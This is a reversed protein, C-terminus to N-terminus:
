RKTLGDLAIRFERESANYSVKYETPFRGAKPWKAPQPIAQSTNPHTELYAKTIMPELFTFRGDWSGYIFTNTFPQGNLEPSHVDTWHLGMQPVASAAAPGPPPVYGAPVFDGSPLNGAKTAYEPDSPLIAAEEAGSVMYFHLDFHPQGYLQPPEHGNPNWGLEAHDFGTGAAQSPLPLTVMLATPSPGTVTTPLGELVGDTMEVGLATPDGGEDTTVWTRASGDAFDLSPGYFTGAKSAPAVTDSCAVAFGAAAIAVAAGITLLQKANM